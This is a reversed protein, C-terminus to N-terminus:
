EFKFRRIRPGCRTKCHELTGYGVIYCRGGLMLKTGGIDRVERSRARAGPRLAVAQPTAQFLSIPFKPPARGRSPIRRSSPQAHDAAAAFSV